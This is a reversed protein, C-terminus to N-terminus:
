PQVSFRLTLWAQHYGTKYYCNNLIELTQSLSALCSLSSLILILDRQSVPMYHFTQNPQFRTSEVKNLWELNFYFIECKQQMSTSM